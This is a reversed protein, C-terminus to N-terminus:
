QVGVADLADRFNAPTFPKSILFSAGSERALRVMDPTGESTVFGFPVEKDHSRLERLFELGNMEPMNWDSLVLDVEHDSLQHLAEIGDQAELFEADDFGAQRLQRIVIMRMARSDDVVLVRM